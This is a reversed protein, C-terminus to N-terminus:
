RPATSSIYHGVLAVELGEWQPAAHFTLEAAATTATFEKNATILSGAINTVFTGPPVGDGTILNGVEIPTASVAYPLTVYQDGQAIAGTVRMVDSTFTLTEATIDQTLPQSLTVNPTSVNEVWTDAPVGAGPSVRQGIKLGIVNNLPVVTAGALATGTRQPPHVFIETIAATLAPTFTIAGGGPDTSIYTGAAVGTGLLTDGRKLGILHPLTVTTAGMAASINTFRQIAPRDPEVVTVQSTAGTLPINITFNATGPTPDVEKVVTGPTVTPGVVKAGPRIFVVEADTVPVVTDNASLALSQIGVTFVRKGAVSTVTGTQNAPHSLEVTAAGGNNGIVWIQDGHDPIKVPAGTLLGTFNGSGPTSLNSGTVVGVVADTGASIIEVELREMHLAGSPAGSAIGQEWIHGTSNFVGKVSPTLDTGEVVKSAVGTLTIEAVTVQRGTNPLHLKAKLSGLGVRNVHLAAREVIFQRAFNGAWRHEVTPLIVEDHAWPQRDWVDPHSGWLLSWNGATTGWSVWGSSDASCTVFEGVFAPTAAIVGAVSAFTRHPEGKARTWNGAALGTGVWLTKEDDQIGPQNIYAPAALARAAADSFVAVGNVSTVNGPIRINAGDYGGEARVQQILMVVRDLARMIETVPLTGGESFHYPQTLDLARFVRVIHTAGWATATTVYPAGPGSEVLTFQGPVLVAATDPLHFASSAITPRNTFSFVTDSTRSDIEYVVDAIRVKGGVDLSTQAASFTATGAVVSVTGSGPALVSVLVDEPADYPITVPYPSSASGNGAYEQSSFQVSFSV